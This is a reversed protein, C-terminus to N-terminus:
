GHKESEDTKEIKNMQDLINQYDTKKHLFLTAVNPSMVREFMTDALNREKELWEKLKDWKKGM